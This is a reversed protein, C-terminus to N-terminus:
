FQRKSLQHSVYLSAKMYRKESYKETIALHKKPHHLLELIRDVVPQLEEEKYGSYYRHARTWEGKNLMMMALYHGAAAVLSAPVDLFKEDVLTVEIFYKALTRTQIDYDDAKSIRRLFNYPGPWGLEFKLQNLMFREAKLMEEATYQHDVMYVFETVSPCQIEEVKAAIFLAACGVLQLKQLAVVKVSLFRDIINVCLFLTEPLLQFRSHVQVLWDILVTRMSWQVETQREMYDPDPMYRLELERMYQFIETAYEAVMTTDLYDDEDEFENAEENQEAETSNSTDAPKNVDVEMDEDDVPAEASEEEEKAVVEPKRVRLKQKPPAGATTTSSYSKSSVRTSKLYSTASATTKSDKNLERQGKTNADVISLASRRTKSAAASTTTSKSSLPKKKGGFSRPEKVNENEDAMPASRKLFPRSPLQTTSM